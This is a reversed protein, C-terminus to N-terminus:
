STSYFRRRAEQEIGLSTQLDALKRMIEKREVLDTAAKLKEQQVIVEKKLQIERPVVGANAMIGMAASVIDGSERRPLPKGTGELNELQGEVKAKQIQNEVLTNWKM